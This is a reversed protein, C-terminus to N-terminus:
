EEIVAKEKKALKEPQDEVTQAKKEITEDKKGTDEKIEDQITKKKREKREEKVKKEKEKQKEEKKKMEEASPTKIDVGILEAFIIDNNLVAHIRIKRPPGQIGRAWVSQNISQGIRVDKCKMHRELYARIVDIAKRSRSLRCSRYAKRLPITFIKEEAM